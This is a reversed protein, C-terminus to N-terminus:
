VHARGIKIRQEEAFGRSEIRRNEYVEEAQRILSEQDEEDARLFLFQCDPFSSQAMILEVNDEQGKPLLVLDPEHEALSAPWSVIQSETELVVHNREELWKTLSERVGADPHIVVIKM